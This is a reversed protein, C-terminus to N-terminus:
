RAKGAKRGEARLNGRVMKPADMGPGQVFLLANKAGSTSELTWTSAGVKAVIRRGGIWEVEDELVEVPGAERMGALFRAPLWIARGVVLGLLAGLTLPLAVYGAAEVRAGGKFYLLADIAASAVVWVALPKWLGRV